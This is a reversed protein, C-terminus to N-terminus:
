SRKGANLCVICESHWTHPFMDVGQISTATLGNDTMELCDRICTQPNCSVYVLRSKSQKVISSLVQRARPHLGARPPDVVICDPAKHEHLFASTLVQEVAGEIVMLNGISNKELNSHADEINAPNNEISLVSTFATSLWIGITASGAYLDWCCAGEGASQRVKEYLTEVMQDNTQFFSQTSVLFRRPGIQDEITPTGFLLREELPGSGADRDILHSISRIAPDLEGLSTAWKVIQESAEHSPDTVLAVLVQNTRSAHRVLIHRLWGSKKLPDYPEWGYDTAIRATELVIRETLETALYCTSVAVEARDDGKRHRSPVIRGGEKIFSFRIKNRYRTPTEEQSRVMPLFQTAPYQELLPTFTRHLRQEKLRVQEPYPIEQCECGGCESYHPCFPVDDIM